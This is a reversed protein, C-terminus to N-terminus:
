LESSVDLYKGTGAVVYVVGAQGVTLGAAVSCNLLPSDVSYAISLSNHVIGGPGSWLGTDGVASFGLTPLARMGAALNFPVLASTTTIIVGTALYLNNGSNSAFRRYYRRCLATEENLSRHAFPSVKSGVELQLGTLYLSDDASATGTPTFWIRVAVQTANSPIAGVFSYRNWSLTGAIAQTTDVPHTEGTFGTSFLTQATQDTGTGATVRVNALAGAASFNSGAAAYFSFVVSQGALAISDATELVQAVVIAGTTTSGNNRQLRIGHRFGQNATVFQSVTSGATTVQAAAWRDLTYTMSATLPFSTGRQAVTPMGNYLFNRRYGLAIVDALSLKRPLGGPRAIYIEDTGVAPAGSALASVKSDAM